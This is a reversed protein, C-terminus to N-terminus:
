LSQLHLITAPNIAQTVNSCLGCTQCGTKIWDGCNVLWKPITHYICKLSIHKYTGNAVWCLYYCFMWKYWSSLNDVYVYTDHLPWICSYGVWMTSKWGSHSSSSQYTTHRSTNNLLSKTLFTGTVIYICWNNWIHAEITFVCFCWPSSLVALQMIFDYM